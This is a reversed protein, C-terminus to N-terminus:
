LDNSTLSNVDDVTINIDEREDNYPDNMLEIFRAISVDTDQGMMDLCFSVKNDNHIYISLDNIVDVHESCVCVVICDDGIYPIEFVEIEYGLRDTLIESIVEDWHSQYNDIVYNIENFM